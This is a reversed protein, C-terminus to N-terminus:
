YSVAINGIRPNNESSADSRGEKNEPLTFLLTSNGPPSEFHVQRQEWSDGTSFSAITKGDSSNINIMQKTASRVYFDLSVKKIQGTMNVIGLAAGDSFSRYRLDSEKDRKGEAWLDNYNIEDVFINKPPHQKIKYAALFDDEYKEDVLDYKRMFDELHGLEKQSLYKKQATIYRIDHYNLIDGAIEFYDQKILSSRINAELADGKPIDYLLHSIVPTSKQFEFQGPIERAFAYGNISQKQHIASTMMAYSAYEYDTSGPIELIKFNGSEGALRDYFNSYALDATNLPMLTFEIMLLLSFISISMTKFRTSKERLFYALGVASFVSASLMGYVFLRGVTRMNKYFPLHDYIFSYPLTITEGGWKTQTGLSLIFFIVLALGWFVTNKSTIQLETKESTGRRKLFKIVLSKLGYYIVYIIFFLTTYGLFSSSGKEGTPSIDQGLKANLSNFFNDNAGPWLSHAVPPIFPDYLNMSYRQAQKLGADLFNNQSKAIEILPAFFVFSFVAFIAIGLTAYILFKKSLFTKPETFIKFLIFVLVFIATFALLQHETVTILFLFFITGLFYKFEFKEFFKFLFLVFFPLWEQHMTGVHTALSQYFHFPSFAFVLGAFFSAPRSGTFYFALLYAGLASLFFSEFFLLNYSAFKGLALSSVAYPTFINIQHTKALTILGGVLGKDKLINAQLGAQGVVQCSDGCNQSSVPIQSFMRGAVPFTMIITIFFYLIIIVFIPSKLFNGRHKNKFGPKKETYNDRIISNQVPKKIDLLPIYAM